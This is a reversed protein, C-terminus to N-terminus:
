LLGYDLATQVAATRNRVHLQKFIEHLHAKVTNTSINLEYAIQKNLLGQSLLFLIEHQRTTVTAMNNDDKKRHASQIGQIYLDGSLVTRIAEKLTASNSSKSVFGQAGKEMSIEPASESSTASIVLIPSWINIDRFKQILSFGSSGSLNLDLLILDPNGCKDITKIAAEYNNVHLTIIEQEFSQLLYKMGEAFLVHDDIILIKM